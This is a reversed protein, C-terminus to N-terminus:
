FNQTNILNKYCIVYKINEENLKTRKADIKIQENLNWVRGRKNKNKM